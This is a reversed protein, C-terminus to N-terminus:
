RANPRCSRRKADSESFDWIMGEAMVTLMPATSKQSTIREDVPSQITGRHTRDTRKDVKRRLQPPKHRGATAAVTVAVAMLHTEVYRRDIEHTENGSYGHNRRQYLRPVNEAVDDTRRIRGRRRCRCDIQADARGRSDHCPGHGQKQNHKRRDECATLEAIRDAGDPCDEPKHAAIGNVSDLYVRVLTCSAKFAFLSAGRAADLHDAPKHVVGPAHPAHLTHRSARLIGYAVLGSAVAHGSRHHTPHLRM